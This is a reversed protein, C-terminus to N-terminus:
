RDRIRAVEGLHEDEIAAALRGARARLAQAEDGGLMRALMNLAMVRFRVYGGDGAHELAQRALTVARDHRRRQSWSMGKRGSAQASYM